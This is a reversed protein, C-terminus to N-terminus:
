QGGIGELNGFGIPGDRDVEIGEACRNFIAISRRGFHRIADGRLLDM